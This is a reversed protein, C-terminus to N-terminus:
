HKLLVQQIDQDPSKTQDPLQLHFGQDVLNKRVVQIDESALKGQKDVDFSLVFAMEGMLNQLTEPVAKFDDKGLVYLYTNLKKRSKYVFCQM